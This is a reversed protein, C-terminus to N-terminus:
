AMYFAASLIHILFVLVAVFERRSNIDSSWHHSWTSQWVCCCESSSDMKSCVVPMYPLMVCHSDSSFHKFCRVRCEQVCCSSTPSLKGIECLFDISPIFKSYVIGIKHTSGHAPKKEVNQMWLIKKKEHLWRNWTVKPNICKFILLDSAIM